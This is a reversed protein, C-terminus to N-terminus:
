SKKRKKKICMKAEDAYIEYRYRFYCFNIITERFMTDKYKQHGVVMKQKAKNINRFIQFYLILSPRDTGTFVSKGGKIKSCVYDKLLTHFHVMKMVVNRSHYHLVTMGSLLLVHM